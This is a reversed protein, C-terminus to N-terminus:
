HVRKEEETKKKVKGAHNGAHLSRREGQDTVTVRLRSAPAQSRAGSPPTLRTVSESRIPSASLRSWRADARRPADSTPWSNAVKPSLGNLEIVGPPSRPFEGPRAM